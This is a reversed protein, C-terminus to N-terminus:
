KKKERRLRIGVFIVFFLYFGLFVGLLIGPVILPKNNVYGWILYVLPIIPLLIGGIAWLRYDKEQAELDLKEVSYEETDM